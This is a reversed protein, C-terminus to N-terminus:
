LKVIEELDTRLHGPYPDHRQSAAIQWGFAPDNFPLTYIEHGPERGWKACYYALNARFTRQNQQSLAEVSAVTASGKHVMGTKGANHFTIGCLATRRSYDSDEFYIPHFNIDFYGVTDLAVPNIAFVAYGLIQWEAMRLNQGEAEIIGAERHEVAAQALILLDDRSATVDDNIVVIADAGENRAKVIGDNWSRALGRNYGEHHFRVNAVDGLTKFADFAATRQSHTYIHWTVDPGNLAAILPLVDLAYVVLVIHINM